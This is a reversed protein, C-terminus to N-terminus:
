KKFRLILVIAGVGIGIYLAAKIIEGLATLAGGLPTALRQFADERVPAVDAGFQFGIGKAVGQLALARNRYENVDHWAALWMNHYWHKHRSAFENWSRLFPIWTDTYWTALTQNGAVQSTMDNTMATIEADLRTVEDAVDAFVGTGALGSGSTIVEMADNRKFRLRADRGMSRLVMQRNM